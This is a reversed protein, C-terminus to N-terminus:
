IYNCIGILEKKHLSAFANGGIYVFDAMEDESPNSCIQNQTTYVYDNSM